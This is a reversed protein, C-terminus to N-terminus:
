PIPKHLFGNRLSEVTVYANRILGPDRFHFFLSWRFANHVAHAVCGGVIVFGTLRFVDKPLGPALGDHCPADATHVQQWIRELASLAFRNFRYSQIACGAHGLQRGTKWDRRLVDAIAHSSKRHKLLVPDHVVVRKEVRGDPLTCRVFRNRVFFEETQKAKCHVVKGPPLRSSHHKFAVIPTGDASMEIFMPSMAAEAVLKATVYAM